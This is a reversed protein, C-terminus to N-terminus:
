FCPLFPALHFRTMTPNPKEQHKKDKKGRLSPKNRAGKQLLKQIIIGFAENHSCVIHAGLLHLLDAHGEAPLGHHQHALVGHHALGDSPM